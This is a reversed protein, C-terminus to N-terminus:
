LVFLQQKHSYNSMIIMMTDVTDVPQTGDEDVPNYRSDFVIAQIWVFLVHYELSLILTITNVSTSLKRLKQEEM